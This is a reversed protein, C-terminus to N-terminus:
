RLGIKCLLRHRKSKSPRERAGLGSAEEQIINVPERVEVLTNDETVTDLAYLTDQLDQLKPYDPRVAKEYGNLAKSYM